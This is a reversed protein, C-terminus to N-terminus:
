KKNSICLKLTTVTNSVYNELFLYTIKVDDCTTLYNARPARLAVVYLRSGELEQTHRQKVLAVIRARNYLSVIQLRAHAPGELIKGAVKKYFETAKDVHRSKGELM